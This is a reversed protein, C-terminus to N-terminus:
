SKNEVKKKFQKYMKNLAKKQKPSLTGNRYAQKRLSSLFSEREYKFNSSYEATDLYYIVKDVKEVLATRNKIYDSNNIKYLYKKYREIVGNIASSMKPTVKRGNVLASHMSGIFERYSNNVELYDLDNYIHNLQKVTKVSM